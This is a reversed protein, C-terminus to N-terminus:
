RGAESNLIPASARDAQRQLMEFAAQPGIESSVAIRLGDLFNELLLGGTTVDGTRLLSRAFREGSGEMHDSLQKPSIM